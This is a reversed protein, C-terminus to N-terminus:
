LRTEVQNWHIGLRSERIPHLELIFLATSLNNLHSSSIQQKTKNQKQLM